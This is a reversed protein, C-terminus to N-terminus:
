DQAPTWIKAADNAATIQERVTHPTVKIHASNEGSRFQDVARVVAGALLVDRDVGMAGHNGAALWRVLNVSARTGVMEIRATAAYDRVFSQTVDSGYLIAAVVAGVRLGVPVRRAGVSSKDIESVENWWPEIARAVEFLESDLMRSNTGRVAAVWVRAIELTRAPPADAVMRAVQKLTRARGRNIAFISEANLGRTVLMQVSVGAEVVANLRHHGDLLVGEASVGIAENTVRWEGQKIARAYLGVTARHLPRNMPNAHALLKRAFDPTITEVRSTIM